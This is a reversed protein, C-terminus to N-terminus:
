HSPFRIQWQGMGDLCIDSLVNDHLSANFTGLHLHVTPRYQQTHLHDDDTMSQRDTGDFINYLPLDNDSKKNMRHNSSIVKYYRQDWGFQCEPQSGQLLRQKTKNLNLINVKCIQIRTYTYYEEVSIHNMKEARSALLFQVFSRTYSNFISRRHLLLEEFFYLSRKWGCIAFFKICLRFKFCIWLVFVNM